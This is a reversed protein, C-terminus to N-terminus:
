IQNLHYAILAATVAVNLSEVKNSMPICLASSAQVEVEKSVGDSENGLIVARKRPYEHDFVSTHAHSSLVYSTYGAQGLAKLGALTSECRLIPAHFLTGASAKAVLPGLPACGREPVIIGNINAATASRIIMGLNQPNTVRDLLILSSEAASNSALFSDLDDYLKCEIDLAVGQDQKKNKSIRALADRTHMRIECGRAQAHTILRDLKTSDQNSDALHLVKPVLATDQLCTEVPNRGYVTLWKRLAKKRDKYDKSDQM